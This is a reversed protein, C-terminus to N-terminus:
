HRMGIVGRLGLGSALLGGVGGSLACWLIAQGPPLLAWLPLLSALAVAPAALAGRLAVAERGALLAATDTGFARLALLAAAGAVLLLNQSFAARYAAPLLLSLPQRLVWVLAV